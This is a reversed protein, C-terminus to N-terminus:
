IFILELLSVWPRVVGERLPIPSPGSNQNVGYVLIGRIWTNIETDDLEVSFSHDPCSPGLYTWM